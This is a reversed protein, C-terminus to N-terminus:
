SILHHQLQSPFDILTVSGLQATFLILSVNGESVYVPKLYEPNCHSMYSINVTHIYIFIYYNYCSYAILYYCHSIHALVTYCCDYM